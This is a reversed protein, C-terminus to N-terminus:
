DRIFFQYAFEGMEGQWIQRPNYQVPTNHVSNQSIFLDPLQGAVGIVVLQDAQNQFIQTMLEAYEASDPPVQRSAAFAAEHDKVWQPPEEGPLGNPFDSRSLAGSEIQREANLWNFWGRAAWAFNEDGLVAFSEYEQL